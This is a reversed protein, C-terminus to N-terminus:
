TVFLARCAPLPRALARPAGRAACGYTLNHEAMQPTDDPAWSANGWAATGGAPLMGIGSGWTRFLRVRQNRPVFNDSLYAGILGLEATDRTEGARRAADARQSSVQRRREAGPYDSVSGWAGRKWLASRGSGTQLGGSGVVTSPACPRARRPRARQREGSLVAARSRMCRVPARSPARAAVRTPCAPAAAGSLLATIAKPVGLTPGAINIYAAIHREVWDPDNAAAWRLFSRFVNDGWSHSVM